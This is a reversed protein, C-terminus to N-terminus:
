ASKLYFDPKVSKINKMHILETSDRGSSEPAYSVFANIDSNGLPYWGGGGQNTFCAGCYFVCSRFSNDSWVLNVRTAGPSITNQYYLLTYFKTNVLRKTETM